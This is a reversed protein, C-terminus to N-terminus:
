HNLGELIKSIHDHYDECNAQLAPNSDIFNELSCKQFILKMVATVEPIAIFNEFKKHSYSYLIENLAEVKEQYQTMDFKKKVLCTNIFISLYCQFEEFDVGTKLQCGLQSEELIKTSMKKVNTRFVRKSRSNPLINEALFDEYFAKAQRRFARFFNKNMVDARLALAKDASQKKSAKSSSKNLKISSLQNVKTIENSILLSNINSTATKPAEEFAKSSIDSSASNTKTIILDGKVQLASASNEKFSKGGEQLNSTSRLNVSDKEGDLSSEKDFPSGLISDFYKQSAFADDMNEGCFDNQDDFMGFHNVNEVEGVKPEEKGCSLLSDALLSDDFNFEPASFDSAFFSNANEM